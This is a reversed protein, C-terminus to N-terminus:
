FSADRDDGRISSCTSGSLIPRWCPHSAAARECKSGGPSAQRLPGAAARSNQFGAQRAASKHPLCPWLQVTRARLSLSGGYGPRNAARGFKLPVTGHRSLKREVAGAPTEFEDSHDFVEPVLVRDDIAQRNAGIHICVAVPDAVELAQHPAEVIQM